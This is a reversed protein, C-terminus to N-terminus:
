MCHVSKKKSFPLFWCHLFFDALHRVRCNLPRRASTQHREHDAAKLQERTKQCTQPSLHSIFVFHSFSYTSFTLGCICALKPIFTSNAIFVNSGWLSIRGCSQQCFVKSIVCLWHSLNVTTTDSPAASTTLVCYFFSMLTQVAVYQQLSVSSGTRQHLEAENTSGTPRSRRRPEPKNDHPFQWTNIETSQHRDGATLVTIVADCLETFVLWLLFVGWEFNTEAKRSFFLVRSFFINSSETSKVQLWWSKIWM